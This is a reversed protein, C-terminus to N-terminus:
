AAFRKASMRLRAKMGANMATSLSGKVMRAGMM